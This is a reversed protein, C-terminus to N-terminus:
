NLSLPFDVTVNTTKTGYLTRLYALQNSAGAPLEVWHPTIYQPNHKYCTRHRSITFIIPEVPIRAIIFYSCKPDIGFDYITYM